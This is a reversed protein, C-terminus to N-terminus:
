SAKSKLAEVRQLHAERTAKLDVIPYPYDVGLQIKKMQCEMKHNWPEHIAKSSLAQLEPLWKKIYEGSKDFKESQVVPNFLRYYPAADVGCGAVWQWGMSNNAADADFLTDAFWQLGHRWDVNLNKTLLSAVLMRVRNHM